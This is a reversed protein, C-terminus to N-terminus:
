ILNPLIYYPNFVWMLFVSPNTRGTTLVNSQYIEYIEHIYTQRTQVIISKGLYVKKVYGADPTVDYHIMLRLLLGVSM